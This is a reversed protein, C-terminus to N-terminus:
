ENLFKPKYREKKKSDKDCNKRISEFVKTFLAEVNEVGNNKL